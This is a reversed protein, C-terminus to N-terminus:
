SRTAYRSERLTIAATKDGRALDNGLEVSTVSFRTSRDRTSAFSRGRCTYMSLIHARIDASTGCHGMRICIRSFLRLWRRNGPPVSMRGRAYILEGTKNREKM